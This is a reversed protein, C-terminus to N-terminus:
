LGKSLDDFAQKSLVEDKIVEFNNVSDAYLEDLISDYDRGELNSIIRAQSKLVTQTLAVNSNLLSIIPTIDINMAKEGHTTQNILKSNQSSGM